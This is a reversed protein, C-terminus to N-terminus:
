RLVVEDFRIERVDRGDHLAVAGAHLRPLRLGVRTGGTGTSEISLEAADGYLAQMRARTNALGIGHGGVDPLGEAGDDEVELWLAGAALGALFALM